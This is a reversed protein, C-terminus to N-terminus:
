YFRENIASVRGAILEMQARTIARHRTSLDPMIAGPLYQADVM